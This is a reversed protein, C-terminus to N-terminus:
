SVMRVEYLADRPLPTSLENLITLTVHGGGGIITFGKCLKIGLFPLIHNSVNKKLSAHLM